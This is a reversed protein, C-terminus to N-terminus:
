SALQGIVLEPVPPCVSRADDFRDCGGCMKGQKSYSAQHDAPFFFHAQLSCSPSKDDGVRALFIDCAVLLQSRRGQDSAVLSSFVTQQGKSESSREGPRRHWSVAVGVVGTILNPNIFM